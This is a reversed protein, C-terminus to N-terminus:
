GTQRLLEEAAARAQPDTAGALFRELDARALAASGLAAYAAGRSYYVTPASMGAEIARTFDAVADRYHGLARHALGSYYQSEADSPRLATARRYDEIARAYDGKCFHAAARNRWAIALAPDRRVAEDFAAIARAFDGEAFYRAGQEICEATTTPQARAAPPAAAAPGGALLDRYGGTAVQQAAATGWRERHVIEALPDRERPAPSEDPYGLPTLAILDVHAPIGLLQKVEAERLSPAAMWCTGLDLATAALLMNQIAAAVSVLDWRYASADYADATLHRKRHLCVVIYVPANYLTNYTNATLEEAQAAPMAERAAQSFYQRHAGLILDVLARRTSADSVVVFDWPQGNSASPAWRAADLIAEVDRPDVPRAQYRRISRRWKIATLVDMMTKTAM